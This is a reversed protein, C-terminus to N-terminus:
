QRRRPRGVSRRGEKYGKPAKKPVMEEKMRM